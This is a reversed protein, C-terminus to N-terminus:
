IVCVFLIEQIDTFDFFNQIELLSENQGGLAAM